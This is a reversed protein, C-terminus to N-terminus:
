VHKNSQRSHEKAEEGRGGAAWQVEEEGRMSEGGSIFEKEAMLVWSLDARMQSLRGLREQAIQTVKKPVGSLSLPETMDSEKCGWPSDM